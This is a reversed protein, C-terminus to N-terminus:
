LLFQRIKSRQGWRLKGGREDDKKKEGDTEGTSPGWAAVTKGSQQSM